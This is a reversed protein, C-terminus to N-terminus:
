FEFLLGGTILDEGSFDFTDSQENKIHRLQAIFHTRNVGWNIDFDRGTASDLLNANLQIGAGYMYAPRYITYQDNSIGETQQFRFGGYGAEVFPILPQNDWYHFRYIGGGFLPIAFLTYPKEKATNDNSADHLSRIIWTGSSIKLGLKGISKLFQWELALDTWLGKDNLFWEKGTYINKFSDGRGKYNEPRYPGGMLTLGWHEPSERPSDPVFIVKANDSPVEAPSTKKETVRKEIFPDENPDHHTTESQAFILAYFVTLVYFFLLFLIVKHKM